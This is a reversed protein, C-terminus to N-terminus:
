KDYDKIIKLLDLENIGMKLRPDNEALYDPADKINSIRYIGWPEAMVFNNVAVFCGTIGKFIVIAPSNEVDLANPKKGDIARTALSYSKINETISCAIYDNKLCSKMEDRMKNYEPRSVIMSYSYADEIEQFLSLCLEKESFSCSALMISFFVISFKM